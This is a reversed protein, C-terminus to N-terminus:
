WFRLSFLVKLIVIVFNIWSLKYLLSRVELLLMVFSVNFAWDKATLASHVQVLRAVSEASTKCSLMRKCMSRPHAWINWFMHGLTWCSGGTCRRPMHKRIVTMCHRINRMLCDAYFIWYKYNSINRLCLFKLLNKFFINLINKM